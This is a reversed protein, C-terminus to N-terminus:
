ISGYFIKKLTFHIHIQKLNQFSQTNEAIVDLLCM